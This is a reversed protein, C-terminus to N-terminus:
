LAQVLGDQADSTAVEVGSLGRRKLGRIFRRWGEATEGFATELGLIERQGAENIGVALMVTTSRVAEQRRVKLHMADLVLFPYDQEELSRSAWAEVQEDLEGTLRSVM